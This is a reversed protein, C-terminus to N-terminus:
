KRKKKAIPKSNGVHCCENSSKQKAPKKGRIKTYVTVMQADELEQIIRLVRKEDKVHTLFPVMKIVDDLNGGSKEYTRRIEQREEDSDLLFVISFHSLEMSFLQTILQIRIGFKSAYEKMCAKIQSETVLIPKKDSESTACTIIKESEDYVKRQAPDLLVDRIAVILQFKETDAISSNVKDPHTEM